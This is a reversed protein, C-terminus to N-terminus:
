FNREQQITEFGIVMQFVFNRAWRIWEPYLVAMNQIRIRDVNVARFM